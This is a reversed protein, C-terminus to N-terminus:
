LTIYPLLKEFLSHGIGRVNMLESLDAFRGNENRYAIIDLAINESIGKLGMLEELTANNISLTYRSKFNSDSATVTSTLSSTDNDRFPIDPVTIIDLLFVFFATLLIFIAVYLYKPKNM